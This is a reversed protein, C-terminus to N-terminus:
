LWRAVGGHHSCTGQRSRSFSYTGDRCQASAGAPPQNERTRTPSAVRQGQPSVFGRAQGPTGQALTRSLYEELVYGTLQRASVSCWGEACSYLRVQARLPLTGLAQANALPQARITVTATTVAITDPQPAKQAALPTTLGLLLGSILLLSCVSPLEVDACRLSIAVRIPRAV